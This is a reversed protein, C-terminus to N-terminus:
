QPTRQRRQRMQHPRTDISPRHMRSSFRSQHMWMSCFLATNQAWALADKASGVLLVTYLGIPM